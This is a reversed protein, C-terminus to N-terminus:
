PKKLKELVGKAEESIEPDKDKSAAELAKRAPEGIEGLAEYLNADQHIRIKGFNVELHVYPAKPILNEKTLLEVIQPVQQGRKAFEKILHGIAMNVVSEVGQWTKEGNFDGGSFATKFREKGQQTVEFDAKVRPYPLEATGGVELLSGKPDKIPDKLIKGEVGLAFEFTAKVDASLGAQKLCQALKQTAYERVREPTVADDAKSVKSFFAAGAPNAITVDGGAYVVGNLFMMVAAISVVVELLNQRKM